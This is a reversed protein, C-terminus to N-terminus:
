PTETPPIQTSTPWPTYTALPLTPTGSSESTPVLTLTPIVEGALTSEPVSTSFLPTVPPTQGIVPIATFAPTFTPALRDAQSLRNRYWLFGGFLGGVLAVLVLLVLFAWIVPLRQGGSPVGALPLSRSPMQLTIITINDHGGRTNALDILSNLGDERGKNAFAEAIENDEILDTLGDSCLLIIDGPQLQFGQNTEVPETKSDAQSRIRFDPVVPQQSGLHRRIVHANPHTRAQEATMLGTDIAEQVWTHDTTLQIIELGRILYGRSDGVSALYLRNELVWACVCTTSMGELQPDSQSQEYIALDAQAIADRLSQIPERGDSDAIRKCITEVAMEAAVEGARHGGVGDAIVAFLSPTSDSRKHAAVAYRDENNKGRMGPHTAATVHLHAQKIPIM